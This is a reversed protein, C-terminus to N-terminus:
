GDCALWLSERRLIQLINSYINESLYSPVKIHKLKKNTTIM